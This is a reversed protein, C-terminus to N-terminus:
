KLFSILFSNIFVSIIGLPSSFISQVASDFVFQLPGRPQPKSPAASEEPPEEREAEPDEFSIADPVANAKKAAKGGISGASPDGAVTMLDPEDELFDLILGM